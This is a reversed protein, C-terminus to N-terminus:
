KLKWFKVTNTESGYQDKKVEDSFVGLTNNLQRLQGVSKTQLYDTAFGVNSNDSKYETYSASTNEKGNVIQSFVYGFAKSYGQLYYILVTGSDITSINRTSLMFTTNGKFNIKTTNKDVATVNTIRYQEIFLPRGLNLTTTVNTTSGNSATLSTRFIRSSYDTFDQLTSTISNNNNNTNGTNGDINSQAFIPVFSMSPMIALVTGLMLILICSTSITM